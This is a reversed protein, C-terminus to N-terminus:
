YGCVEYVEEACGAADACSCFTDLCDATCDTDACGDLCATYDDSCILAADEDCGGTDVDSDGDVDTDADIDIDVDIDSGDDCDFDDWTCHKCDCDGNIALFACPNGMVCCPNDSEHYERDGDDDLEWCPFEGESVSSWHHAFDAEFDDLFPQLLGNDDKHYGIIKLDCDKYCDDGYVWEDDSNYHDGPIDKNMESMTWELKRTYGDDGIQNFGKDAICSVCDKADGLNREVFEDVVETCDQGCSTKTGGVGEHSLDYYYSEDMADVLKDCFDQCSGNISEEEPKCSLASIAIAVAGLLVGCLLIKRM